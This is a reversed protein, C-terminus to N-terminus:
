MLLQISNGKWDITVAATYETKEVQFAVGYDRGNIVYSLQLKELDLHMEIIDGAVCEKGYKYADPNYKNNVGYCGASSADSLKGCSSIFGYGCKRTSIFHQSGDYDLCTTGVKQVGFLNNWALNNKDYKIIQFRWEYKNPPKCINKLHITGYMHLDHIDDSQYMNTVTDGEVLMHTSKHDPDWEDYVYYFSLCVYLILTSVKHFTDDSSYTNEIERLFGSVIDKHKQPIKRVKEFSEM